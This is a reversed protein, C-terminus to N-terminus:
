KGAAGSGAGAGDAAGARKALRLAALPILGQEVVDKRLAAAADADADAADLELLVARAEKLRPLMDVAGHVLMPVGLSLWVLCLRTRTAHACREVELLLTDVDEAGPDADAGSLKRMYAAAFARRAHLPAYPWVADASPAWGLTYRTDGWVAFFYTLDTAAKRPGVHELDVLHCQRGDATVLINGPHLDGHTTVVAAAFGGDAPPATTAAAAVEAELTPWWADKGEAVCREAAVAMWHALEDRAAVGVDAPPVAHLAAVQEAVVRVLAAAAEGEKCLDAVAVPAADVLVTVVMDDTAAVLEPTIGAAALVSTVREAAADVGDPRLKRVVLPAQGDASLKFTRGTAGGELLTLSASAAAPEPWGSLAAATAALASSSPAPSSMNTNLVTHTTM